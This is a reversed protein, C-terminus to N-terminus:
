RWGGQRRTARARKRNDVGEENGESENNGKSKDNGKGEEDGEGKGKSEEDPALCMCDDPCTSTKPDPPMCLRAPHTITLLRTCSGSSCCHLLRGWIQRAAYVAERAALEQERPEFSGCGLRLDGLFESPEWICDLDVEQVAWLAKWIDVFDRAMGKLWVKTHELATSVDNDHVVQPFHAMLKQFYVDGHLLSMSISAPAVWIDSRYGVSTQHWVGSWGTGSTACIDPIVTSSEFFFFWYTMRLMLGSGSCWSPRAM